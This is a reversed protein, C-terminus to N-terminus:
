GRRQEGFPRESGALGATPRGQEGASECRWMSWRLGGVVKGQGATAAKVQVEAEAM